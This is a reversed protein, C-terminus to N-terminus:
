RLLTPLYLVSPDVLVFSSTRRSGASGSSGAANDPDVAVTFTNLPATLGAWTVEAVAEVVACGDLGAPVVTEGIANAPNTGRYFEVTFPVTTPTNGNNRVLVKLQATATDTEPNISTTGGLVEDIVLNPQTTSQAILAGFEEGAQTLNGSDPDVLLSPNGWQQVLRNNDLPYGLNPDSATEMYQVSRRLFETTRAPTFCNGFEDKVSCEGTGAAVKYEYLLSWETLLLPTRQYGNAKMWTRMDIVQQAFLDIKDHEYICSYDSRECLTLQEALPRKWFPKKLALAPDTGNAIWAFVPKGSEPDLVPNGNADPTYYDENREPFIYAHFTWADVPMPSGYRERYAAVVKDLYQLRGPSVQVLASVAVQATPDQSKIFQYADHYAVAYIEPMLDDQWQVRDVENGVIWVAGPNAAILSGLSNATLSPNATYSPLRANTDAHRDQKLRIMPTHATGAPLWGPEGAGFSVLWGIKMEAMKEAAASSASVGYRCNPATAAAPAPRPTPDQQHLTLCSNSEASVSQTLGLLAAGLLLGGLLARASARLWNIYPGHM